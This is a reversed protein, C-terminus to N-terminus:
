QGVEAKQTAPKPSKGSFTVVPGEIVPKRTIVLKEAPSLLPPSPLLTPEVKTIVPYHPPSVRVVEPFDVGQEEAVYKITQQLRTLQREIGGIDREQSSDIFQNNFVMVLAIAAAGLVLWGDRKKTYLAKTDLEEKLQGLDQNHKSLEGKISALDERVEGATVQLPNLDIQHRCGKFQDLSLNLVSKKLHDLTVQISRLDANVTDSISKSVVVGLDNMVERKAADGKSARKMLANIDALTYEDLTKRAKPNEQKELERYRKREMWLKDIDGLESLEKRLEERKELRVLNALFEKILTNTEHHKLDGAGNDDRAARDLGDLNDRGQERDLNDRHRADDNATEQMKEDKTLM